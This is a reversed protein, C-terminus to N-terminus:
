VADLLLETKEQIDSRTFLIILIGVKVLVCEASNEFKDLILFMLFFHIRM